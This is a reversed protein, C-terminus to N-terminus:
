EKGAADAFWACIEDAVRERECDNVVVHPSKELVVRRTLSSALGKEIIDAAHPPVAGDNMSIITLVDADVHKLNARAMKLLKYLSAGGSVWNYRWYENGFYESDESSTDIEYDSRDLRKLFYKLVPTIKLKWDYVAIAPAALAIRPINYKAALLLAVLAGMSLGAVYVTEYDARLDMYADMARRLWDHWDSQMFDKGSTGHGPYRPISVTFGDANLREGLYYMDGPNGTYGHLLLVATEGGPLFRARAGSRVFATEPLQKYFNM